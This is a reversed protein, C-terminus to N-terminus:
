EGRAAQATRHTARMQVMRAKIQGWAAGFAARAQAETVDGADIADTLWAAMRLARNGEAARYHDRFRALLEAPTQHKLNLGM